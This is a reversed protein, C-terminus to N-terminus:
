VGKGEDGKGKRGKGKKRGEGGKMEGKLDLKDRGKM